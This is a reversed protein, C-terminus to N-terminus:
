YTVIKVKDGPILRAGPPLGNLTLFRDRPADDFAMRASLSDVTDGSKVTVVRVYRPKIAAAEQAKLPRFSGPLPALAGMGRGAPAVIIFHYAQAASTAFAFVTVDLANGSSDTAGVTTYAAPFGNVTTPAIQTAPAPANGSLSQLVGRVYSGLNGALRGGSFQAQAGQGSITVARAGNSISFGPPATFAFGLAPHLFRQGDVVGQKPDDGYLLGDVAALYADRNRPNQTGGLARAQALANRVRAGPEPHTSAWAPVSQNVGALRQTLTTEDALSTLMSALADTDYRATSLYRVGLNDAETEQGRSYGLTLLQSGTGIGKGLLQGITDNKVVAAAVMQGIAGLIANRTATRERKISHRAAVHGVEHGLVAALEAEDNALALLGRTIYIYGGPIAFANDIPSDLITVTFSKPDSSLGSQTAIRRGVAEVYALQRGKYAGGYQAVIDGNAADGQAREKDTIQQVPPVANPAPSQAAANAAAILAIATAVTRCPQLRAM